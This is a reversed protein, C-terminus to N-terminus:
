LGARISAVALMYLLAASAPMALQRAQFMQLKSRGAWVCAVLVGGPKLVRSAEALAQQHEPVMFLGYQCTVADFSADQVGFFLVHWEAPVYPTRASYCCM